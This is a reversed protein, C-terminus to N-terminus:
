IIHWAYVDYRLALAVVIKVAHLMKNGMLFDGVTRYLNHLALLTIAYQHLYIKSPSFSDFFWEYCLIAFTTAYTNLYLMAGVLKCARAAPGPCSDDYQVDHINSTSIQSLVIKCNTNYVTVLIITYVKTLKFMVCPRRDQVSVYRLITPQKGRFSVTIKWWKQM